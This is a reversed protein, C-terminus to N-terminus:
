SLGHVGARVAVKLKVLTVKTSQESQQLCEFVNRINFETVQDEVSGDEVGGSVQFSDKERGLIGGSKGGSGIM